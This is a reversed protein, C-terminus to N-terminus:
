DFFEKVNLIVFDEDNDESTLDIFEEIDYCYWFIHEDEEDEQYEKFSIITDFTTIEDKYRVECSVYNPEHGYNTIFDSYLRNIISILFKNKM